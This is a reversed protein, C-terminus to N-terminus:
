SKQQDHNNRNAPSPDMQLNPHGSAASIRSRMDKQNVNLGLHKTDSFSQMREFTRKMQQDKSANIDSSLNSHQLAPSMMVGQKYM